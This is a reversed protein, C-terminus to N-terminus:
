KAQLKGTTKFLCESCGAAAAYQNVAEQCSGCLLVSVRTWNTHACFRDYYLM